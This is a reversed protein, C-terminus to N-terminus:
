WCGCNWNAGYDDPLTYCHPKWKIIKLVRVLLTQCGGRLKINKYWRFNIITSFTKGAMNKVPDRILEQFEPLSLLRKSEQVYDFNYFIPMNTRINTPESHPYSSINLNACTPISLDRDTKCHYPFFM